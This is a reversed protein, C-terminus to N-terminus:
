QNNYSIVKNIFYTYIFTKNRVSPKIIITLFNGSLIMEYKYTLITQLTISWESVYTLWLFYNTFISMFFSVCIFTEYVYSYEYGYYYGYGYGYDYM